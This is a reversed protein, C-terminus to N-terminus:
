GNWVAQEGDAKRARVDVHTFNLYHGLGGIEKVRTALAQVQKPLLGAINIDAAKGLMHQSQPEGGVAKNHAPCRYGCNLTVARGGALDRLKELAAALVKLNALVKPDNHGKCGCRCRFESIHFNPSLQGNPM